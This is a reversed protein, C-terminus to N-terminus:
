LNLTMSNHFFNDYFFGFKIYINNSKKYSSSEDHLCVKNINYTKKAFDIIHKLLKSGIGNGRIPYDVHFYNIFLEKDLLYVIGSIYSTPNYSYKIRIETKSLDIIEM